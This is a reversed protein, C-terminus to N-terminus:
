LHAEKHRVQDRETTTNAACSELIDLCTCYGQDRSNGIKYSM